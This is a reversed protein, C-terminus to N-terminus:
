FAKDWNSEALIRKPIKAFKRLKWGTGVALLALFGGIKLFEGGGGSVPLRPPAQAALIQGGPPGIWVFAASRCKEAGSEYVVATNQQTQLGQPLNAAVKATYTLTASAGAKMVGLNFSVKQSGSDYSGDGSFWKIFPALYDTVTVQGSDGNGANGIFLRYTIEEGSNFVHTGSDM